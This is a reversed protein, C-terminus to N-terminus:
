RGRLADLGRDTIWYADGQKEVLGLRELEFLRRFVAMPYERAPLGSRFARLSALTARGLSLAPNAPGTTQGADVMNGDAAKVASADSDQALWATLMVNPPLYHARDAARAAMIRRLEERDAPTLAHLIARAKPSIM